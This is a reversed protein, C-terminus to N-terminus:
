LFYFWIWFKWIKKCWVICNQWTYLESMWKGVLYVMQQLIFNIWCLKVSILNVFEGFNSLCGCVTFNVFIIMRLMQFGCDCVKREKSSDYCKSKIVNLVWLSSSNWRTNSHYCRPSAVPWLCIGCRRYHDQNAAPSQLLHCM